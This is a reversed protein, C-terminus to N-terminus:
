AQALHRVFPLQFKRWRTRVGPMEQGVTGKRRLNPAVRNRCVRKGWRHRDRISVCGRGKEHRMRGLTILRCLRAWGARDMALLVVRGAPRYALADSVDEAVTLEAGAVLNIGLNKATVHARPLAYVGDVDTLAIGQYGLAHARAVLDEPPSAGDLFSFYSRCHLEAYAM